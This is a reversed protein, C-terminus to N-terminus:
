KVSTCLCALANAVNCAAQSFKQAEDGKESDAAKQILVLVSKVQATVPDVKVNENM